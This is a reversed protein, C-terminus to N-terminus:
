EEDIQGMNIALDIRKRMTNIESVSANIRKILAKADDTSGKFNRFECASSALHELKDVLKAVEGTFAIAPARKDILRGSHQGRRYTKLTTTTRLRIDFITLAETVTLSGANMRDVLAKIFRTKVLDRAQEGRPFREYMGSVFDPYQNKMRNLKVIYDRFLKATGPEVGYLAALEVIYGSYAGETHTSSVGERRTRSANIRQQKAHIPKLVNAWFAHLDPWDMPLCDQEVPRFNALIDDWDRCIIVPVVDLKAARAAVLRRAGDIMLFDEHVLLPKRVGNARIDRKLADLPGLDRRAWALNADAIYKIALETVQPESANSESM